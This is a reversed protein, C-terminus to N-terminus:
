IIENQKLLLEVDLMKVAGTAAEWAGECCLGSMAANEYGKVAARLCEEKVIEAIEIQRKTLDTEHTLM